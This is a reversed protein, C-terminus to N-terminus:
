LLLIGSEITIFSTFWYATTIKGTHGSLWSSRRILICIVLVLLWIILCFTFLVKQRRQICRRHWPEGKFFYTEKSIFLTFMDGRRSSLRCVSRFVAFIFISLKPMRYRPLKEISSLRSCKKIQCCYDIQLPLWRISAISLSGNKKWFPLVLLLSRHDQYYFIFIRLSFSITGRELSPLGVQLAAFLACLHCNSYYFIWVQITKSTNKESEALTIQGQLAM